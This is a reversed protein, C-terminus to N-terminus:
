SRSHVRRLQSNKLEYEGWASKSLNHSTVLVWALRRSGVRPPNAGSTGGGSTCPPASDRGEYRLYTKIHPMAKERSMPNPLTQKERTTGGPGGGGPGGGGPGGGGPGGGSGGGRAGGRCRRRPSVQAVPASHGHHAKARDSEEHQGSHEGWIQVRHALHMGKPVYRLNLSNHMKSPKFTSRTVAPQFHCSSLVTGRM